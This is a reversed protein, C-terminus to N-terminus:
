DVWTDGGIGDNGHAHIDGDIQPGPALGTALDVDYRTLLKRTILLHAGRLHLDPIPTMNLTGGTAQYDFDRGHPTVLLRTGFFGVHKGRFRWTVDATETEIRKLYVRNPLIASFWPKSPSAEPVAKYVHIQIAGSQVHIADFQWRRLALGLPSFSVALRGANLAQM